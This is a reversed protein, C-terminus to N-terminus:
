ILAAIDILALAVAFNGEALAIHLLTRNALSSVVTLSAGNAVLWRTTEAEFCVVALCLPTVGKRTRVDVDNLFRLGTLFQLILVNGASASVHLLSCEPYRSM